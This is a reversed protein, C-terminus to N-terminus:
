DRKITLKGTIGKHDSLGEHIQIQSVEYNETSFICDVVLQLNKTRHLVPDITSDLDVPLNDKYNKALDDFIFTGRPSNTDALFLFEKRKDLVEKLKKYCDKQYESIVNGPYNVPLHTNLIKYNVGSVEIDVDLFMFDGSEGNWYRPDAGILFEEQISIFPTRSFVVPSDGHKHKGSTAVYFYGCQESLFKADEEHMEQFCCVDFDNEKLFNSVSEIHAKKEVNLQLFKISM